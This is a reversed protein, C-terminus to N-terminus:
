PYLETAPVRFVNAGLMPVLMAILARISVVDKREIRGHGRARDLWVPRGWWALICITAAFIMALFGGGSFPTLTWFVRLGTLLM